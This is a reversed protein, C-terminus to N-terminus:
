PSLLGANAAGLPLHYHPARWDVVSAVYCRVIKASLMRLKCSFVGLLFM